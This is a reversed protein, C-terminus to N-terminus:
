APEQASRVGLARKLTKWWSSRRPKHSSPPRGYKALYYEPNSLFAEFDIGAARIRQSAYLEGFYELEEDSLRPALHGEAYRGM